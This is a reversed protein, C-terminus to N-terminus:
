DQDGIMDPDIVIPIQLRKAIEQVIKIRHDLTAPGGALESLEDPSIAEDVLSSISPALLQLNARSFHYNVIANRVLESRVTTATEVQEMQARLGECKSQSLKLSAQLSEIQYQLEVVREAEKADHLLVVKSPRAVDKPPSYKKEALEKEGAKLMPMSEMPRGCSQNTCMVLQAPRVQNGVKWSIRNRKMKGDTNFDAAWYVGLLEKAINGKASWNALNTAQEDSLLRYFPPLNTASLKAEDIVHQFQPFYEFDLTHIGDMWDAGKRDSRVNQIGYRRLKTARM